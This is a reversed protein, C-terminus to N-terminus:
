RTLAAYCIAAVTVHMFALIGVTGAPTGPLAVLNPIFSLLLVVLTVIAFARVPRTLRWELVAYVLSAGIAGAVTLRSVPVYSLEPVPEVVLTTRVVWVILLNTALSAVVALAGPGATTRLTASLSSDTTAM